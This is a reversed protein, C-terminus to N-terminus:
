SSLAQSSFGEFHFNIKTAIEHLQCNQMRFDIHPCHTSKPSQIPVYSNARDAGAICLEGPVHAHIELM